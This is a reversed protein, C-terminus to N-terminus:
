GLAPRQRDSSRAEFGRSASCDRDRHRSGAVGSCRDDNGDYPKQFARLARTRSRIASRKLTPSRCVNHSLWRSHLIKEQALKLAGEIECAATSTESDQGEGSVGEM